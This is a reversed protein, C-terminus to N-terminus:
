DLPREFNHNDEDSVRLFGASRGHAGDLRAHPVSRTSSVPGTHRKAERKVATAETSSVPPLIVPTVRPTKHVVHQSIKARPLTPTNVSPAAAAAPLASTHQYCDAAPSPVLRRRAKLVLLHNKGLTWEQGNPSKAEKKQFHGCM